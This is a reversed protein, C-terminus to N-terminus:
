LGLMKRVNKSDGKALNQDKRFNRKQDESKHGLLHSSYASRRKIKGTGSIKFRDKAGSHTKQKQKM